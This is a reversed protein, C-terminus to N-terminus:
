PSRVQVGMTVPQPLDAPPPQGFSLGRLARAVANDRDPNGTSHLLVYRQLLGTPSIWISLRIGFNGHSVAHNEELAERIRAEMLGGYLRYAVHDVPAAAVQPPEVHLTQLSLMAPPPTGMASLAAEGGVPMLIVDHGRTYRVLLGTGQLLTQLAVDVSFDGQVATSHQGAALRSDYLVQVNSVRSFIELASALSQVPISFTVVHRADPMDAPETAQVPSTALLLGALM